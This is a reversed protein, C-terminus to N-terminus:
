AALHWATDPVLLLLARVVGRMLGYYSLAAFQVTNIAASLDHHVGEMVLSYLIKAGSKDNSCTGRVVDDLAKFLRIMGIKDGYLPVGLTKYFAGMVGLVLGQEVGEHVGASFLSRLMGDRISRKKM